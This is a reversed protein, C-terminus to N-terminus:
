SLNDAPVAADSMTRLFADPIRVSDGSRSSEIAKLRESVEAIRTAMDREVLTRPPRVLIYLLFGAIPLLAVIAIAGVQILFSNSRLLIDRTTWFVLFILSGTLSALGIQFAFIVPDGSLFNLSALMGRFGDILSSSVEM